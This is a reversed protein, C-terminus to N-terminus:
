TIKTPIRYTTKAKKGQIKTSKKRTIGLQKFQYWIASIDVDFAKAHDVLRDDPYDKVRQLLRKKDIKRKRTLRKKTVPEKSSLWRYLTCRGVEYRRSAEMKSGGNNVFNIVRQRLDLSYSM